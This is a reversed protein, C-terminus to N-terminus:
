RYVFVILNIKNSLRFEGEASIITLSFHLLVRVKFKAKRVDMYYLIWIGTFHPGSAEKIMYVTMASDSNTSNDQSDFYVPHGIYLVGPNFPSFLLRQHPVKDFTKQFDLYVVDM